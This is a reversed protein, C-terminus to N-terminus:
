RVTLHHVSDTGLSCPKGKAICGGSDQRIVGLSSLPVVDGPLRELAHGAPDRASVRFTWEGRGIDGADLQASWVTALTDTGDVHAPALAVQAGDGRQLVAEVQGVPVSFRFTATGQAGTADRPWAVEGGARTLVLEDKGRKWEGDYATASGALVTVEELRPPGNQVVFSISTDGGEEFEPTGPNGDIEYDRYGGVVRLHQPGDALMTTSIECLFVPIGTWDTSRREDLLIRVPLLVSGQEGEVYVSVSPRVDSRPILTGKAYV